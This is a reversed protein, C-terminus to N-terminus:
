FETEEDDSKLSSDDYYYLEGEGQGEEEEEIPEGLISRLESLAIAGEVTELKRTGIFTKLAPFYGQFNGDNERIDDDTVTEKSEYPFFNLKPNKSLDLFTLKKFRSPLVDIWTGEIDCGKAELHELNQLERLPLLTGFANNLINLTRLNIFYGINDLSSFGSRFGGELKFKHLQNESLDLTHLPIDGMEGRPHFASISNSSAKLVRLQGWLGNLFELNELENDSVNLSTLTSFDIFSTLRSFDEGSKPNKLSNHKLNLWSCCYFLGRREDSSIRYTSELHYDEISKRKLNLVQPEDWIRQPKPREPIIFPVFDIPSPIRQDAPLL